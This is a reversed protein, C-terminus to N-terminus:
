AAVLLRPFQQKVKIHTQAMDTSVFCERCHHKKGFLRRCIDPTQILFGDLPVDISHLNVVPYPCFRMIEFFTPM